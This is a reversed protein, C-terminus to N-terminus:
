SVQASKTKADKQILFSKKTEKKNCVSKTTIEMTKLIKM